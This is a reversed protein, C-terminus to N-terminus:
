QWFVLARRKPPGTPYSGLIFTVFEPYGMGASGCIKASSLTSLTVPSVVIWKVSLTSDLKLLEEM